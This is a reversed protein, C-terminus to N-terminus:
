PKFIESYYKRGIYAKISAFSKHENNLFNKFDKKEQISMNSVIDLIDYKNLHIFDSYKKIDKM